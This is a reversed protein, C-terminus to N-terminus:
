FHCVLLVSAYFPLAFVPMTIEVRADKERRKFKRQKVKSWPEPPVQCAHRVLKISPIHGM